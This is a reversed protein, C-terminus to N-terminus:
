DAIPAQPTNDDESPTDLILHEKKLVVLLANILMLTGSIPLIIYSISASWKTAPLTVYSMVKMIEIGKVILAVGFAAILLYGFRILLDLAKPPLKNTFIEISIHRKELVDVAIGIFGFWVMCLNTVEEGWFIGIKFFYRLVVQAFVILVMICMIVSATNELLKFIGKLCKSLIKM